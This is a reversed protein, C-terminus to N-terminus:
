YGYSSRHWCDEQRICCGSTTLKKGRKTAVIAQHIENMRKGVPSSDDLLNELYNADFHVIEYNTLVVDVTLWRDLIPLVKRDCRRMSRILRANPSADSLLEVEVSVLNL